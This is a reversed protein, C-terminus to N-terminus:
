CLSDREITLVESSFKTRLPLFHVWRTSMDVVTLVYKYGNLLVNGPKYIDIAIANFPRPAFMPTLPM